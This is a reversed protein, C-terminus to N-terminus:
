PELKWDNQVGKTTIEQDIHSSKAPLTQDYQPLKGTITHDNLLQTPSM